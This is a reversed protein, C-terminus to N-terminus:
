SLSREEVFLGAAILILGVLAWWMGGGLRVGALLNIYDLKFDQRLGLTDVAPIQLVALLVLVAALGILIRRILWGTEALDFVQLFIGALLACVGLLFRGALVAKFPLSFTPARILLQWGSLATHGTLLACWQKRSPTDCLYAQLDFNELPNPIQQEHAAMVIRAPWWPNPKSRLWALNQARVAPSDTVIWPLLLLSALLIVAGVLYLARAPPLPCTAPSLLAWGLAAACLIVLISFVIISVM